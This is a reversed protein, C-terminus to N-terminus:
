EYSAQPMVVFASWMWDCTFCGKRPHGAVKRLEVNVVYWGPELDFDIFPIEDKPVACIEGSRRAIHVTTPPKANCTCTRSRDGALCAPCLGNHGPVASIM